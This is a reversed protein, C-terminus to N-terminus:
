APGFFMAEIRQEVFLNKESNFLCVATITPHPNTRSFIASTNGYPRTFGCPHPNLARSAPISLRARGSLRFSYA